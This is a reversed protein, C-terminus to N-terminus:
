LTSNKMVETRLKGGDQEGEARTLNLASVAAILRVTTGGGSEDRWDRLRAEVFASAHQYRACPAQGPAAAWEWTGDRHRALGRADAVAEGKAERRYAVVVWRKERVRERVNESEACRWDSGTKEVRVTKAATNLVWGDDLCKSGDHWLLM